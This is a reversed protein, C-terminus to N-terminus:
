SNQRCKTHTGAGGPPAPQQRLSTDMCSLVLRCKRSCSYGPRVVPRSASPGRMAAQSPSSNASPRGLGTLPLCAGRGKHRHAAPRAPVRAACRNTAPVDTRPRRVSRASVVIRSAVEQHRPSHHDVVHGDQQGIRVRHRRPRCAPIPPPGSHPGPQALVVAGRPRASLRGKNSTFRSPMPSSPCM